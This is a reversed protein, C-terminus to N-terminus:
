GVIRAAVGRVYRLVAMVAGLKDRTMPATVGNPGNEATVIL